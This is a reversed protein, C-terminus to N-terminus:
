EMHFYGKVNEGDPRDLKHGLGVATPLHSRLAFSDGGRPNTAEDHDEDENCTTTGTHKRRSTRESANVPL